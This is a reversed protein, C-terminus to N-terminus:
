YVNLRCQSYVEGKLNAGKFVDFFGGQHRMAQVSVEIEELEEMIKDGKQQRFYELSEIAKSRNGKLVLYHATDPLFIFTFIFIAPVILCLWQFTVYHVYPGISYSYVIGVLFV